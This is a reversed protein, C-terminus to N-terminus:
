PVPKRRHVHVASDARPPMWSSYRRERVHEYGPIERMFSVRYEDDIMFPRGARTPFRVPGYNHTANFGTGGDIRQAAVGEALLERLLAARAAERERWDHTAGITFCVLPLGAILALQCRRPGSPLGRTMLALLPALVAICYRDFFPHRIALAGLYIASFCAALWLAARDPARRSSALAGLASVGAIAGSAAAFAGIPWAVPRPLTPFAGPHAHSGTGIGFDFWWDIGPPVGLGLRLALAVFVGAGTLAAGIAVARPLALARVLVVPLSFAGLLFLLTPVNRALAGLARSPEGLVSRLYWNLELTGRVREPAIGVAVIAIGAGAVTLWGLRSPRTALLVLLAALFIGMGPQRSFAAATALLAGGLLWGWALRPLGRAFCFLSANVLAGFAVDTMFSLALPLHVPNWAYLVAALASWCTAAGLQRCLAFAALMGFGGFVVSSLRLTEYSFGFGQVFLWGIAANTRMPVWTWDLREFRGEEVLVRVSHAYAWDDSVPFEGSVGLLAITAIWALALAGCAIWDRSDPQWSPM